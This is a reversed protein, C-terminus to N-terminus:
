VAAPLALRTSRPLARITDGACLVLDVGCPFGASLGARASWFGRALRGMPMSATTRIGPGDLVLAPGSQPRCLDIALTAGSQPALDTGRPLADLLTADVDAEAAFALVAQAPSEVIPCGTHFRAFDHLSDALAPSFYVPTQTDALTVLVAALAPGVQPPHRFDPLEPTRAEGPRAMADLLARFCAQADHVPDAFGRAVRALALSM